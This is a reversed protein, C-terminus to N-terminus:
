VEHVHVRSTVPALKVKGSAYRYTFHTGRIPSHRTSCGKTEWLLPVRCSEAWIRLDANM